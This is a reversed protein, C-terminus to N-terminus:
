IGDYGDYLREERLRDYDDDETLDSYDPDVNKIGNWCRVQKGGISRYSEPYDGKLRKEM